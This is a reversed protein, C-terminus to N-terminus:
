GVDPLARDAWHRAVDGQRNKFMHRIVWRQARPGLWPVRHILALLRSGIRSRIGPDARQVPDIVSHQWRTGTCDTFVVMPFVREQISKDKEYPFWIELTKSSRPTVYPLVDSIARPFTLLYDNQLEVWVRSIVEDSDNYLLVNVHAFDKDSLFVGGDSNDFITSDSQDLPRIDTRPITVSDHATSTALVQGAPTQWVGAAVAYVLRAKEERKDALSRQYLFVAWGFAVGTALVGLWQPLTGGLWTGPGSYPQARHSHWQAALDALDTLM